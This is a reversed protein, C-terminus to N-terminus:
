LQDGDKEPQEITQQKPQRGRSIKDLAEDLDARSTKFTEIYQENLVKKANKVEPKPGPATQTKSRKLDAKILMKKTGFEVECNFLIM